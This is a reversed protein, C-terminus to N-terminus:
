IELSQATMERHKGPKKSPRRCPEATNAPMAPIDAAAAFNM